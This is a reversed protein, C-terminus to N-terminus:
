HWRFLRFIFTLLLGNLNTTSMTPLKDFPMFDISYVLYRGYIQVSSALTLRSERIVHPCKYILFDCLFYKWLSIQNNCRNRQLCSGYSWSCFKFLFYVTITMVVDLSFHWIKYIFTSASLRKNQSHNLKPFLNQSVRGSKIARLVGIGSVVRHSNM